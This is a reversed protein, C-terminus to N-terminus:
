KTHRQLIGVHRSLANGLFIPGFIGSIMLLIAFFLFHSGNWDTIRLLLGKSLGIFITNFLYIMFSNQGLWFFVSAFSVPLHRVLGHLAPMSLAGVPMLESKVPWYKGFGAILLLTFLLLLLLIRWYRDVFNIWREDQSAAWAGLAFFITYKGIHDLYLYAPLPVCYILLGAILLYYLRGHDAWVFIPSVISLTFLVFLYWVSLAPSGKTHWLLNAMGAWLNSPQNDVFMLHQAVQKGCVILLGLAFFPILLRRARAALLAPWHEPPAFLAGSFVAVIGSLYLFFPMHFAYVARRMPEYWNVHLPDSRAVIHGFVVFLIALGKARDIDERRPTTRGKGLDVM